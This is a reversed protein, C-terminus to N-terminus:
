ETTTKFWRYFEATTARENLGHMLRKYACVAPMYKSEKAKPTTAYNQFVAMDEGLDLLGREGEEEWGMADESLHTTLQKSAEALYTFDTSASTWPPSPPADYSYEDYSDVLLKGKSEIFLAIERTLDEDDGM